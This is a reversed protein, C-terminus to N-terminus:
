FHRHGGPDTTAVGDIRVAEGRVVEGVVSFGTPLSVEPAFTAVLAHDHGGTMVWHLPDVGYASAVAKLPAAADFANRHLEIGVSSAACLHGLDALLGDSVDCMASAGAVAAAPGAAYPVEPRRYAEVLARPSRFGRSLVALGAEAWGLRGCVAVIDGERASSRTIPARGRLDGLATVVVSLEGSSTVDGGVISAGILGAEDRLGDTLELVWSVPLQPPALLAVVLATPDAGMAAVDALSAAAARRGVDYGTTWAQKWHVGSVLADTTVVVNGGPSAVVAADDGPGVIVDPGQPLRGTVAEILGFEGCDAVTRQDGGDPM